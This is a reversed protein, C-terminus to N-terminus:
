CYTKSCTKFFLYIKMAIKKSYNASHLLVPLEKLIYQIITNCFSVSCAGASDANKTVLHTKIKLITKGQNGCFFKM